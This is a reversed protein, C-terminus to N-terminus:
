RSSSAKLAIAASWLENRGESVTTGVCESLYAEWGAQTGTALQQRVSDDCQTALFWAASGFSWEDTNVLELVAAPGQAEAQQIATATIGCNKCVTSLYNAYKTNYEPSQMNRTGQGPIGPFHNRNYKFADSEYLMLALLAAQEPFATIGFNAFSIAIYPAAQDAARCEGPAPPKACSATTPAIKLIDAASITTHAHVPSAPTQTLLITLALLATALM